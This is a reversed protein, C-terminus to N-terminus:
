WAKDDPPLLDSASITYPVSPYTYDTQANELGRLKYFEKTQANDALALASGDEFRAGSDSYQVFTKSTRLTVGLWEQDKDPHATQDLIIKHKFCKNTETSFIVVSNHELPLVLVGCNPDKSEIVLKRSSSLKNEPYKYCSYVAIFTHAELDLAQDSHFGMTTYANSYNEILANNFDCPLSAVTKIREVLERHVSQFGRAPTSYKSTTRVIPTGRAEDVDVLVTGLRGKGVNEFKVSSMLETFLSDSGSPPPPVSFWSFHDEELNYMLPKLYDGKNM